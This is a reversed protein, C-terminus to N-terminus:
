AVGPTGTLSEAQRITHLAKLVLVLSTFLFFASLLGAMGLAGFRPVLLIIGIVKLVAGVFHVKTPFEPLNLPLLVSRNWYFINVTVGGALMILLCVYSTPLFNTGYLAVVWRGFVVLGLAAPITWAASILSGSRLLYRVNVWRRNAIETAVEKYTTQILPSVPILIVNLIAKAIKYFGAQLPSTFAGLWLEDSDRTILNLTGSINTSLAFRVLDRRDDRLTGLPARWWGPGWSHRAQWLAIVTLGVALVVKGVLYAGVVMAIGAGTLFAVTILALTIVSQAVMVFAIWRFRNFYQLLGTSSEAILNAIVSTGYFAYLAALDPNHSFIEAGFPALLLILGFALVSGSFEVFAAAKFTAAAKIPEDQAEYKGVYSVVLESMRFSTLRNLNSSFLTILGVNGLGVPGLLRAALVGQAMSLAASITQASFLYGTNRIVRKLLPHSLFRQLVGTGWRFISRLM